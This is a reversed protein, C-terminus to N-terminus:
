GDHTRAQRGHRRIWRRIRRGKQPQEDRCDPEKRGKMQEEKRTTEVLQGVKKALSDWGDVWRHKKEADDYAQVNKSDVVYTIGFYKLYVNKIIMFFASVKQLNFIGTTRRDVNRFLRFVSMAHPGHFKKQSDQSKWNIDGVLVRQVKGRVVELTVMIETNTFFINNNFSFILEVNRNEKQSRVTIGSLTNLPQLDKKFICGSIPTCKTLSSYWFSANQLGGVNFDENMNPAIMMMSSRFFDANAPDNKIQNLVQPNGALVSKVDEVYRSTIENKKTHVELKKAEIQNRRDRLLRQHFSLASAKHCHRASVKGAKARPAKEEDM